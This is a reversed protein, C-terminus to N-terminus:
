KIEFQIYTDSSWVSTGTETESVAMLRFFNGIRELKGLRVTYYNVGDSQRSSRYAIGDRYYSAEFLDEGEANDWFIHAHSENIEMDMPALVWYTGHYEWFSLEEESVYDRSFGSSHVVLRYPERSDVVFFGMIKRPIPGTIDQLYIHEEDWTQIMIRTPYLSLGNIEVIEVFRVHLSNVEASQFCIAYGHQYFLSKLEEEPIEITRYDFFMEVLNDWKKYDYEYLFYEELEGRINVNPYEIHRVKGRVFDDYYNKYYITDEPDYDMDGEKWQCEMPILTHKKEETINDTEETNKKAEGFDTLTEAEVEKKNRDALQEADELVDNKKQDENNIACGTVMVCVLMFIIIKRNRIISEKM